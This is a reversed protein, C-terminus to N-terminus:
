KKEAVFNKGLANIIGNQIARDEQAMFTTLTALGIESQELGAEVLFSNFWPMAGAVKVNQEGFVKHLAETIQQANSMHPEIKAAIKRWREIGPLSTDLLQQLPNHGGHHDGHGHGHGIGHSHSHSHSHGHDHDHSHDHGHTHAHDHQLDKERHVYHGTSPVTPAQIRKASNILDLRDTFWAMSKDDVCKWDIEEAICIGNQNLVDFAKKLTAELPHCHHLSKSFLCVDFKEDKIDEITGRRYDVGSDKNVSLIADSPDIAVADVREKYHAKVLASFEGSGCGVELIRVPGQSHESSFHRSDLLGIFFNLFPAHGLNKLDSKTVM